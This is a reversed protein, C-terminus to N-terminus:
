RQCLLSHGIHGMEEAGGMQLLYTHIYTHTYTHIHTHICTHICTYMYVFLIFMRATSAICTRFASVVFVCVCMYIYVNIYINAYIYVCVVHVCNCDYVCMCVLVHSVSACVRARECLMCIFHKVFV